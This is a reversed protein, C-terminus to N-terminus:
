SGAQRGPGRRVTGLGPSGPCSRPPLRAGLLPRRWRTARLRGSGEGGHLGQPGSPGQAEGPRRPGRLKHGTDRPDRSGRPGAELCRRPGPPCGDAPRSLFGARRAFGFGTVGLGGRGPGLHPWSAPLVPCPHSLCACACAPTHVGRCACAHVCVWPSRTPRQARRRWWLFGRHLLRSGLICM